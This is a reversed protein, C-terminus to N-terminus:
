LTRVMASCRSRESYRSSRRARNIPDSASRATVARLVDLISVTRGLPISRDRGGLIWLSPVQLSALVPGPDFLADIDKRAKLVAVGALADAALVDFMAASNAPGIGSYEGTSEGVGRKDYGLVALGMDKLPQGGFSMMQRATVRGSGHVLVVAPHPGKARDPVEVIAALRAGKSPIGSSQCRAAFAGDTGVLAHSM